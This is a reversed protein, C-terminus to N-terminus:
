SNGIFSVLNGHYMWGQVLDYEIKRFESVLNYFRFIFLYVSKFNLTIVKVGLEELRVSLLSEAGLNMVIHEIQPTSHEICKFLM